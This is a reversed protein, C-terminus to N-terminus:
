IEVFSLDKTAALTSAFTIFPISHIDKATITAVFHAGPYIGIAAPPGPISYISIM